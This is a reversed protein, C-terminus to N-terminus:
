QDLYEDYAQIARIVLIVAEQYFEADINEFTDTPKHYDPHDEEGFYIFPIGEEHFERHDSSNTWDMLDRDNPEDHGLLLNLNTELSELPMKLQPYHYTGCAYLENNENRGIM